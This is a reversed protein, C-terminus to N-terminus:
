KKKRLHEKFYEMRKRGLNSFRGNKMKWQLSRICILCNVFVAPSRISFYNRSSFITYHFSLKQSRANLHLLRINEWWAICSMCTLKVPSFYLLIDEPLLIICWHCNPSLHQTKRLKPFQFPCGVIKHLRIRFGTIMNARQRYSICGM